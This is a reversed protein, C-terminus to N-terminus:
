ANSLEILILIILLSFRKRWIFVEDKSKTKFFCLRKTHCIVRPGIYTYTNLTSIELFMYFSYLHNESWCFIMIEAGIWLRCEPFAKRESTQTNKPAPYCQTRCCSRGAGTRERPRLLPQPDQWVTQRRQYSQLLICTLYLYSVWSCSVPWVSSCSVPWVCLHRLCTLCEPAPYLASMCKGAM